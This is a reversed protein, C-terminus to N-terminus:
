LLRQWRLIIFIPVIVAFSRGGSTDWATLLLSAERVVVLIHDVNGTTLEAFELCVHDFIKALPMEHFSEVDDLLVAVHGVLGIALLADAVHESVQLEWVLFREFAKNVIAGGVKNHLVHLTSRM